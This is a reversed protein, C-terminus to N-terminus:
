CLEHEGMGNSFMKQMRGVVSKPKIGRRFGQLFFQEPRLHACLHEVAVLPNGGGCTFVDVAAYGHEPSTHVALHSESLTLVLSIGQPEFQHVNSEVVHM